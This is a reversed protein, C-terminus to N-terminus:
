VKVNYNKLIKQQERKWDKEKIDARKDINTKGKALAFLLKAKGAKFYMKLPVATLGKQSLHQNIKLIEKKNLLLKRPRREHHSFVTIQSNVAISCNILELEKQKNASIYSETINAKGMRLAKVESGVLILGAEYTELLQYDFSARRNQAIVKFNNNDQNKTNM